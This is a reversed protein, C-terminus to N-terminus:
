LLHPRMSIVTDEECPQQPGSTTPGAVSAEQLDLKAVEKSAASMTQLFSRSTDDQSQQQLGVATLGAVSAELLELKAKVFDCFRRERRENTKMAYLVTQIDLSNANGKMKM